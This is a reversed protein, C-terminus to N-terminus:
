LLNYRGTKGAESTLGEWVLNKDVNYYDKLQKGILPHSKLYEMVLEGDVMVSKSNPRRANIQSQQQPEMQEEDCVSKGSPVSKGSRNSRSKTPTQLVPVHGALLSELQESADAEEKSDSM